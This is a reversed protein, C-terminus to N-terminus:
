APSGPFAPFTLDGEDTERYESRGPMAFRLVPFFWPPCSILSCRTSKSGVWRGRSYRWSVVRGGPSQPLSARGPPVSQSDTSSEGRRSGSGADHVRIVFDSRNLRHFLNSFQRSRVPDREVGVGSLRRALDRDVHVGQPDIEKGQGPVLEVSRLPNSCEIDTVADLQFPEQFTGTLLLPAPGSGLIDQFDHTESFRAGYSSRVQIQEGSLHPFGSIVQLFRETSLDGVSPDVSVRLHPERVRQTDTEQTNVGATKQVRDAVDHRSRRSRSTM